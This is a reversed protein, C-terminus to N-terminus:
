KNNTVTTRKESLKTENNQNNEDISPRCTAMLIVVIKICVVGILLTRKTIKM